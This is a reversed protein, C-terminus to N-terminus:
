SNRFVSPTIQLIRLNNRIIFVPLEKEAPITIPRALGARKYIRHSGKQREFRCGIYFLFKEFRKWHIPTIRPV